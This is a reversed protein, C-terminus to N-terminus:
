QLAMTQNATITEDAISETKTQFCHRSSLRLLINGSGGSSQGIMRYVIIGRGRMKDMPSCM